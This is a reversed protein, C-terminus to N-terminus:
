ASFEDRCCRTGRNITVFSFSGPEEDTGEVANALIRDLEKEAHDWHWQMQGDGDNTADMKGRSFYLWAGAREAEIDNLLGFDDFNASTGPATLGAARLKSNIWEFAYQRGRTIRNEIQADTDDNNLAAYSATNDTGYIDEIDQRTSYTDSDDAIFRFPEVDTFDGYTWKVYALYEVGPVLGEVVYAYKGVVDNGDDDTQHPIVTDAAVIIEGTDVRKVGFTGTPDSLVLTDYDTLVGDVDFVVPITQTSVPLDEPDPTPNPTLIIPM